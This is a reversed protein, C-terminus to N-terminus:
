PTAETIVLRQGEHIYITAYDNPLLTTSPLTPDAWAEQGGAAQNTTTVLVPGEDGNTILVQRTM